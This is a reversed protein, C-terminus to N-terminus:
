ILLPKMSCPKEVLQATITPASTEKLHSLVAETYERSAHNCSNGTIRGM